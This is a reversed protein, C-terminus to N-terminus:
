PALVTDDRLFLYFAAGEVLGSVANAAEAYSKADPVHKVTAHRSTALVRDANSSPGRNMVLVQFNEYDQNKLGDLVQDCWEGPDDLVLVVVVPPALKSENTM